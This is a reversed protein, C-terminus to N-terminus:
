NDLVTVLTGIPTLPYVTQASAFPMEVCGDSQPFGYSSRIFGHLADGGHFYSVWPIGPDVYKTGDPNTGSMTTVTFREFVPWTGSETPAGAVGTNVLTSFVPVGNSFVTATELLAKSVLVYDYPQANGRGDQVDALLAAWVAPGAVGDTTLGHQEEFNMVAGQTVVNSVGQTWLTTLALAQDPWRWSFTGEQDNGEQTPSTLPTAPTFTLPLYGLEALLEQLRLISGQAVTFSATVTASLHQGRDGVVGTPGGPISITETAGPVLPGTAEYQLLTPSLAVWQGAIAPSLIPMPSGNALPTSFQVSITSGAAVNTGTPAVALITLAAPPAAGTASATNSRDHAVVVVVAGILLVAAVGCGVIVRVHTRSSKSSQEGAEM